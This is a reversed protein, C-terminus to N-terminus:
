AYGLATLFVVLFGYVMELIGIVPVRVRGRYASLGHAARLLLIIMAAVALVPALGAAALILVGVVASLHSLIVPIRAFPKDRDLRLRARVYLISPIARGILIAWLALAVGWSEGGGLALSAAVAALACAGGLEALLDRGRNSLYNVVQVLALPAALVLPLLMRMEGLWLVGVLGTAALTGYLLVFKEAAATRAYRKGRRWDTVAIKLPHRLLFAGLTALALCAGAWSPAVLLGLLLPELLFGWSGHEPPFAISRLRVSSSSVTTTSM